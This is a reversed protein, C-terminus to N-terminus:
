FDLSQLQVVVYYEGVDAAEATDLRSCEVRSLQELRLGGAGGRLMTGRM